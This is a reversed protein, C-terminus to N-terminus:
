LSYIHIPLNGISLAALVAKNRKKPHNHGTHVYLLVRPSGMENKTLIINSLLLDIFNNNFTPQFRTTLPDIMDVLQKRQQGSCNNPLLDRRESVLVEKRQCRIALASFVQATLGTSIQWPRYRYRLTYELRSLWLFIKDSTYRKIFGRNVLCNVDTHLGPPYLYRHHACRYM